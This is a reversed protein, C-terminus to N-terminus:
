YVWDVGSQEEVVASVILLPLAGGIEEILTQRQFAEDRRLKVTRM